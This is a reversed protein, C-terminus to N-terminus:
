RQAYGYSRRAVAVADISKGIGCAISRTRLGDCDGEPEANEACQSKDTNPGLQRRPNADRDAPACAMNM